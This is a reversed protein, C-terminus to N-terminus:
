YFNFIKYFKTFSSDTYSTNEHMLSKSGSKAVNSSSVIKIQGHEANDVGKVFPPNFLSSTEFSPFSFLEKEIKSKRLMVSSPSVICLPLCQKFIDGSYKQHKFMPNVRVGNRIWIEDTYVAQCEPHDRMWKVQAELKGVEWLDDSDLFCIM